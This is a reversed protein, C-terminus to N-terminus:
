VKSRERNYLIESTRTKTKSVQENLNSKDEGKFFNLFAGDIVKGDFVVNAMDTCYGLVLQVSRYHLIKSLLNKSNAGRFREARQSM